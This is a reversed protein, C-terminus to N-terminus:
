EFNEFEVTMVMMTSKMLNEIKLDDPSWTRKRPIPAVKAPFTSIKFHRSPGGYSLCASMDGVHGFHRGSMDGVKALTAMETKAGWTQRASMDGSM